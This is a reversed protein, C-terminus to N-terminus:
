LPVVRRHFGSAAYWPPEHRDGVGIYRAWDALVEAVQLVDRLCDRCVHVRTVRRHEGRGVDTVVTIADGPMFDGRCVSCRGNVSVILRNM